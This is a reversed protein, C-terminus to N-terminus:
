IDSMIKYKRELKEYALQYYFWPSFLICYLIWLSIWRFDNLNICTFMALLLLPVTYFLISCVREKITQSKIDLPFIIKILRSNGM